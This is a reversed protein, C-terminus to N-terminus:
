EWPIRIRFYYTVNKGNGWTADVKYTYTGVKDPATLAGGLEVFDSGGTKMSVRVNKPEFSFGLELASNPQVPAPSIESWVELDVGSWAKNWFLFRWEYSDRRIHEAPLGGAGGDRGHYYVSMTPLANEPNQQALGNQIVMAVFLVVVWLAVGFAIRQLQQKRLKM